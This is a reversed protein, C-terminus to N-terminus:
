PRPGNSSPVTAAAFPRGAQWQEIRRITAAAAAAVWTAGPPWDHPRGAAGPFPTDETRAGLARQALARGLETGLGLGRGSLGYGVLLGLAAEVLRPYQDGSLDVWGSWQEAFGAVSLQPFLGRLRALGAAIDGNGYGGSPGSLTVILRGDGSRRVGSPLRRTDTLARHRELVGALAEAPMPATAAEHVRFPLIRRRFPALLQGLDIGAALIVTDCLVAGQATEVRWGMSHRTLATVPSQEHVAAGAQRAARALGRAYALPNLTLGRPEVLAAHYTGGGIAAATGAADLLPLEVGRAAWAERRARLTEVGAPAHAAFILGGVEMDCAIRHREVLARVLEPADAAARILREGAEFGLDAQARAPETRLYPVVQGFARGSGCAGIREAEILCVPAGAQALHLAASTGAIGGGIVVVGAHAEGILPAACIPPEGGAAYAFPLTSATLDRHRAM